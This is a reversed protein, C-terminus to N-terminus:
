CERELHFSVGPMLLYFSNFKYVASQYNPYKEVLDFIAKNFADNTSVVESPFTYNILDAELDKELKIDKVIHLSFSVSNDSFMFSASSLDKKGSFTMFGDKFNSYQFIDIWPFRIGILWQIQSKVIELDCKYHLIGSNM